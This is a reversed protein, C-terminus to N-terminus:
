EYRSRTRTYACDTRLCDTLVSLLRFERETREEICVLVIAIFLGRRTGNSEARTKYGVLPVVLRLARLAVLLSRKSLLKRQPRKKSVTFLLCLTVLPINVTVKPSIAVGSDAKRYGSCRRGVHSARRVNPFKALSYLVSHVIYGCPSSHPWWLTLAPVTGHMLVFMVLQSAYIEQM